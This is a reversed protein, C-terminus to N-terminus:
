DPQSEVPPLYEDAAITQCWDPTTCKTAPDIQSIAELDYMWETATIYRIVEKHSIIIIKEQEEKQHRIRGIEEKIQLM